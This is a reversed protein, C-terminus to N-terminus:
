VDGLGESALLTVVANKEEEILSAHLNFVRGKYLARYGAVVRTDAFIAQYRVIIQHSVESAVRQASQLERGTLPQIDAWVPTLAAWTLQQAGYTDPSANRAQILLRRNLQGARISTM